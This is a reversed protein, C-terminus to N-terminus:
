RVRWVTVARDGTRCALYDGATDCVALATVPVVGLVRSDTLRTVFTLDRDYRLLLDGVLNGRGLDQRVRGTAPDIRAVRMDAAVALGDPAISRWRPGSWRVAGTAPDIAAAGQEGTACVLDGCAGLLSPEVIRAQWMRTLDTLRYAAVSTQGHTYLVDGVFEDVTQGVAYGLGLEYPDIGLNRGTALVTGDAAAYLTAREDSDVGLLYRHGPDSDLGQESARRQWRVRGTALDAMRLLGDPDVYAVRDGLVHSVSPGPTRWLERGTRADLFFTGPRVVLVSGALTVNYEGPEVRVAWRPGAPTLPNAEIRGEPRAVYLADPTLLTSSTAGTDLVATLVRLREPAASGQLPVLLVLFLLLVARAPVARRDRSRAPPPTTDLDILV